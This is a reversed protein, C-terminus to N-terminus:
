ILKTCILKYAKWRSQQHKIHNIKIIIKVNSISVFSSLIEQTDYFNWHEYNVLIFLIYEHKQIYNLRAQFEIVRWIVSLNEIYGHTQEHYNRVDTLLYSDSDNFVQILWYKTPLTLVTFIM